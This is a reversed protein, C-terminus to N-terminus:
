WTFSKYLENISNEIKYKDRLTLINKQFIKDKDKFNEYNEIEFIMTNVFDDISNVRIGIPSNNNNFYNICDNNFHLIPKQYSLSEMISGSCSVRYLSQDYLILFMDIDEAYKEMDERSLRKGPSPCNIQKYMSLESNDMGIIRIEYKNNIERLSLKEVILKL